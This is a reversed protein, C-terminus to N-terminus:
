ERGRGAGGGGGSCLGETRKPTERAEVKAAGEGWSGEIACTRSPEWTKEEELVKGERSLDNDIRHRYLREDRRDHFGYLILERYWTM